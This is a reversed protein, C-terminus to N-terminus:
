PAPESVVTRWFAEAASGVPRRDRYLRIELPINWDDGAAAVLRGAAMDDEVLTQPLWAVGRGDLAMPRLVSALHATFAVRVPVSELRSGVVARAIRGLGSEATYQLVPVEGSTRGGVRHQPKGQKNPASVPVLQDQGVQASLYPEADLAGRAQPHAHSLVFQIKSQLMLAECRQLVDSVLQVPGLTTRSELSRLWRPLFTFSLAHTAAIRLTVSSSEAVIRAEGQVRAVRALLEDAVGRFWEGVETLKAPQTSRDFLDADLWEELARIRRSFAPQTTHREEAARSFNGTAALTRFDELWVFNM